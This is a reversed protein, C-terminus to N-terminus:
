YDRGAQRCLEIYLHLCKAATVLEALRTRFDPDEFYPLDEPDPHNDPDSEDLGHLWCWVYATEYPIDKVTIRHPEASGNPVEPGAISPQYQLSTPVGNPDADYIVEAVAFGWAMGTGWPDTFDQDRMVALIHNKNPRSKNKSM